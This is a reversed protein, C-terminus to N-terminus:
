WGITELSTKGRNNYYKCIKKFSCYFECKTDVISGNRQKRTWLDECKEPITDEKLHVDLKNTIEYAIELIRDDEIKPVEIRQYTPESKIKNADKYFLDLVMSAQKGTKKEYIFRYTNLQLIYGDDLKGKAIEEFLKKGKYIKTFKYDHIVVEKDSVPEILDCTGTIKWGNALEYELEAEPELLLEPEKDLLKHAGAELGKHALTGIEAQGIEDLEIADETVSYYIELLNSGFQSASITKGEKRNYRCALEVIREVINNKDIM